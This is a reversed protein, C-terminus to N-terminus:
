ANDIYRIIGFEKKNTLHNSNPVQLVGPALFYIDILRFIARLIRQSVQSCLM